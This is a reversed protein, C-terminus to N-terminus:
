IDSDHQESNLDIIQDCLSLEQPQNSALIVIGGAQTQNEILKTLLDFGQKDLNSGPEDLMLVSPSHLLAAALKLRQRQGTSLSGYPQEAFTESQSIEIANIVNTRTIGRVDALFSLNEIGSLEEYLEVYPALYGAKEKLLAAEVSQNEIKWEISGSSPRLLGGLCQLLTSKGSGNSGAIGITMKKSRFNLNSLVEKSGYSKYLSQVTVDIMQM